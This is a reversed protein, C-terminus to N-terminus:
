LVPLFTSAQPSTGLSHQKQFYDFNGREADLDREANKVCASKDCEENNQVDGGQCQSLSLPNGDDMCKCTEGDTKCSYGADCSAAFLAIFLKMVKTM